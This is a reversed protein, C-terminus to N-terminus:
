RASVEGDYIGDLPGEYIRLDMLRQQLKRVAPGNFGSSLTVNFAVPADEAFLRQRFTEDSTGVAGLGMPRRAFRVANVTDSHYVGDCEGGFIGLDRLRCQLDRVAEGKSTLGLVAGTADQDDVLGLYERYGCSGDYSESLLLTRLEANEKRSKYIEVRTGVACEEAIFKADPWLLRICGHSAPRGLKNLAKQSVSKQSKYSCPISHFLVKDIIRTAYQAYCNYEYFFYWSKREGSAAEPLYFTGRPTSDQIGTSCIMQRAISDDSTNYVTVIQNTVDVKIYYPKKYKTGARAPVCALLALLVLALARAWLTRIRKDDFRRIKM